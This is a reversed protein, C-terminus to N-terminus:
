RLRNQSEQRSLFFRTLEALLVGVQYWQPRLVTCCLALCLFSDLRSIPCKCNRAFGQLAHTIV